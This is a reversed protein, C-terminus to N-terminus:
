FEIHQLIKKFALLTSSDFLTKKVAQARNIWNVLDDDNFNVNTITTFLGEAIFKGNSAPVDIGAAKATQALVAIGKLNYILLDQLNATSGKKGCM